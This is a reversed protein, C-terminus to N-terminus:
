EDGGIGEFAPRHTGASEGGDHDFAAALFGLVGLHVCTEASFGVLGRDLQLRDIRCSAATFAEAGEAVWPREV